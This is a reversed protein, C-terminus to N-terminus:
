KRGQNYVIARPDFNSVFSPYYDDTNDTGVALVTLGTFADVIELIDCRRSTYDDTPVAMRLTVLVPPFMNTCEGGIYLERLTSRYGDSPDEVATYSVGNLVFTCVQSDEYDYENIKVKTFSVGTLESIRAPDEMAILRQFDVHEM